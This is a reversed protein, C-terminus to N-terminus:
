TAAVTQLALRWADVTQQVHSEDHATSLFCVEFPSPPLYVGQALLAHFLAHFREQSTQEIDAFGRIPQDTFVIAFLSGMTPLQLPIDLGTAIESLARTLAQTTQELKAYPQDAQLRRLTALGAAVSVPNGSLTGAQYVSGLPALQEMIDARGGLAGIPMGGGIIKGLCTLDPSVGCLNQYEGFCFRFGCIVGDFVLLAGCADAQERLFQLFGDAPKVLGMNAAVPEVLIAALDDGHEKLLQEVDERHNYRAVLTDKACAETVGASSASAIGAVGSGAKVLLADAHGHYCGEFKLITNRKTAGRALRIATMCAETGSSVLRVREMSPIASTILEAMEIEAETTVAYSTGRAAAETIAQVVDPHAHGLILPGFSMCYDILERGDTTTLMAGKASKAFIPDAGVSRFARVPSNVGGPMANRSREILTQHETM